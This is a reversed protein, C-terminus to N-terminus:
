AERASLVGLPATFPHMGAAALAVVGATREAAMRRAAALEGIADAVRAAPRTVPDLHAAPLEPKVGPGGDILELVEEARPSLDLTEPDLLMVEEELGLTLPETEDFRARLAAGLGHPAM